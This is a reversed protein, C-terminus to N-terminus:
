QKNNPEINPEINYNTRFRVLDSLGIQIFASQMSNENKILTSLMADQTCQNSNTQEINSHVIGNERVTEIDMGIAFRFAM